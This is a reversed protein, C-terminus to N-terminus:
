NNGNKTITGKPQQGNNYENDLTKSKDIRNKQVLDDDIPQQHAFMPDTITKLISTPVTIPASYLGPTNHIVLDAEEFNNPATEAIYSSTPKVIKLASVYLPQKKGALIKLNEIFAQGRKAVLDKLIDENKLAESDIVVFSGGRISAPNYHELIPNIINAPDYKELISKIRENM